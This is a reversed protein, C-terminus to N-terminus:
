VVLYIGGVIVVVFVLVIMGFSILLGIVFGFIFKGDFVYEGM